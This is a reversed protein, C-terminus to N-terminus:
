FHLMPKFSEQNLIKPHLILIKKVFKQSSKGWGMMNLQTYGEGLNKTGLKTYKTEQHCFTTEFPARRPNLLISIFNVYLFLIFSLCFIFSSDICLAPFSLGDNHWSLFYILHERPPNNITNFRELGVLFVWKPHAKFITYNHYFITHILYHIQVVASCTLLTWKYSPLTEM